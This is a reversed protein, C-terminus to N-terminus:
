RQMTKTYDKLDKKLEINEKEYFERENKIKEQVRKDITLITYIQIGLIATIGIGMISICIELIRQLSVPNSDHISYLSLAIAIISLGLAAWAVLNRNRSEKM